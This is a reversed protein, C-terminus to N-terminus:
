VCQIKSQLWLTSSKHFRGALASPALSLHKIGPDPLLDGSFPIGGVATNKSSFGTCRLLRTAATWPAASGAASTGSGSASSRWWRKRPSGHGLAPPQTSACVRTTKYKRAVVLGLDLCPQSRELGSPTDTGADRQTEPPRLRGKDATISERDEGPKGRHSDTMRRLNRNKLSSLEVACYKESSRMKNMWLVGTGSLPM